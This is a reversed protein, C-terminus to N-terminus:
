GKNRAKQSYGWNGNEREEEIIENRGMATTPEMELDWAWVETMKLNRQGQRFELEDGNESSRYISSKRLRRSSVHNAAM